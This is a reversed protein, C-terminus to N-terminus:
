HNSQIIRCDTIELPEEFRQDLRSLLVEDIIYQRGDKLANEENRQILRQKRIADDCSIYIFEYPFHHKELLKILQSREEKRWFGYDLICSIDLSLCQPIFTMFYNLIRWATADHAEKLCGEYLNLMVDDISLIVAKEQKMIQHAYTTKGSAIKGCLIYVKAM